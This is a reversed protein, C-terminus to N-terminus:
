IIAGETKLIFRNNEMVYILPKDEVKEYIDGFEYDKTISTKIGSVVTKIKGNKALIQYSKAGKILMFCDNFERNFSGLCEKEDTIDYLPKGVWSISDTAILIVLGGKNTIKEATRVMRNCCRAIVVASLHAYLPYNNRQWYGIIINMIYKCKAKTKVDDNLKAEVKMDYYHKFFGRLTEAAKPKLAPMLITKTPIKAGYITDNKYKINGCRKDVLSEQNMYKEPFTRTDLEGYIALHGISPYFAFPYDKTPEVIGAEVKMKNADPMIKSGEYPYASSVDAKFCHNYPKKNPLAYNIPSPICHKILYGMKDKLTGVSKSFELGKDNFYERLLNFAERPRIDLEDNGTGGMDVKIQFANFGENFLRADYEIWSLYTIRNYKAIHYRKGAGMTMISGYRVNIQRYGQGELADIIANFQSPSVSICEIKDWDVCNDYKISLGRQNNNYLKFMPGLSYIKYDEDFIM